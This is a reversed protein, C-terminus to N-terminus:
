LCIAAFVITTGANYIDWCSARAHTPHSVNGALPSALSQPARLSCSAPRPEIGYPVNGAVFTRVDILARMKRFSNKM